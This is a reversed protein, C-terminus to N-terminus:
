QTFHLNLNKIKCNMSVDVLCIMENSSIRKPISYTLLYLHKIIRYQQKDEETIVSTKPPSRVATISTRGKANTGTNKM